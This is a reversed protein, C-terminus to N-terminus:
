ARDSDFVPKTDTVLDVSRPLFKGRHATQQNGAGRLPAEVEGLACTQLVSRRTGPNLATAGQAEKILHRKHCFCRADESENRDFSAERCAVTQSKAGKRSM